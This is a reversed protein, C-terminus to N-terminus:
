SEFLIDLRARGSKKLGKNDIKKKYAEKLARIKTSIQDATYQYNFNKMEQSIKNYIQKKTFIKGAEHMSLYKKYLQILLQIQQKNWVTVNNKNGLEQSLSQIESCDIEM